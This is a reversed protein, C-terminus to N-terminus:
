PFHYFVIRFPFSYIYLFEIFCVKISTTYFYWVLDVLNKREKGHLRSDDYFGSNFETLQEVTAPYGDKHLRRLYQERYKDNAPLATSMKGRPFAFLHGSLPSSDTSEQLSSWDIPEVEVTKLWEVLTAKGSMDFATLGILRTLVNARIECVEWLLM